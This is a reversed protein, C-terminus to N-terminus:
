SKKLYPGRALKKTPCQELLCIKQLDLFHCFYLFVQGALFFMYLLLDAVGRTSVFM